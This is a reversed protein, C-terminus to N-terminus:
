TPLPLWGDVRQYHQLQGFLNAVSIGYCDFEHGNNLLVTLPHEPPAIGLCDYGESTFVAAISAIDVVARRAPKVMLEVYAKM